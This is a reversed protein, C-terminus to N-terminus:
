TEALVVARGKEGVDFYQIWISRRPILSSNKHGRMASVFVLPKFESSM